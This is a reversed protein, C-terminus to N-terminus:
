DIYEGGSRDWVCLVCCAASVEVVRVNARESDGGFFCAFLCVFLLLWGWSWFWLVVFIGFLVSERINQNWDIDSVGRGTGSLSFVVLLM